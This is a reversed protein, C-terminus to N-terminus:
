LFKNKNKKDQINQRIKLYESSTVNQLYLYLNVKLVGLDVNLNIQSVYQSLEINEKFWTKIKM